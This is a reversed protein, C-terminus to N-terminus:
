CNHYYDCNKWVRQKDFVWVSTMPMLFEPSWFFVGYQWYHLV